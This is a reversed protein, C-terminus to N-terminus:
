WRNFGFRRSNYDGVKLKASLGDYNCDSYVTVVGAANVPKPKLTSNGFTVPEKTGFAVKPADIQISSTLKSFVGNELCNNSRNLSGSRGKFGDHEFLVVDFKGDIKVSAVADEPIGAKALDSATYQGPALTVGPGKFNCQGYFTVDALVAFPAIATFPLLLLLGIIKRM